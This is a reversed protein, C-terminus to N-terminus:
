HEHAQLCETREAPYKTGKSHGKPWGSFARLTRNLFVGQIDLPGM